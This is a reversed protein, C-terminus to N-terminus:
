VEEMEKKAKKVQEYIDGGKMFSSLMLQVELVNGLRDVKAEYCEVKFKYSRM